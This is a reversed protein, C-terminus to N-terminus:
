YHSTFLLLLGLSIDANYHFYEKIFKLSLSMYEKVTYPSIGLIQATEEYTKGEIRCLKFVKQQQPSLKAIAGHLLHSYERWQLYEDGNRCASEDIKSIIQKRLEADVTIKKFIKFVHNRSIRYLYGIISLEPKIQQRVEWLKLFVDHIIDEALEPVKVYRLVYRYLPPHYLYYVARFADSDGSKLREILEVDTAATIKM